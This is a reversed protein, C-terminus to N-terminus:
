RRSLRYTVAQGDHLEGFFKQFTLPLLRLLKRVVLHYETSIDSHLGMGFLHMPAPRVPDNAIAGFRPITACIM